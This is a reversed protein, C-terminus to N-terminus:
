WQASGDYTLDQFNCTINTRESSLHDAIILFALLLEYLSLSSVHPMKLRCSVPSLSFNHLFVLNYISLNFIFPTNVMNGFVPVLLWLVYCACLGFCPSTLINKPHPVWDWIMYYFSVTHTWFQVACVLLFLFWTLSKVVSTLCRFADSVKRSYSLNSLSFIYIFRRTAVIPLLIHLSPATSQRM